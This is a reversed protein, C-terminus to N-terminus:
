GVYSCENDEFRQFKIYPLDAEGDYEVQLLNKGLM